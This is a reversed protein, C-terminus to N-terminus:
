SAEDFIRKIINGHEDYLETAGRCRPMQNKQMKAAKAHDDKQQKWIKEEFGGVLQGDRISFIKWRDLSLSHM